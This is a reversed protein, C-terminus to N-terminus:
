KNYFFGRFHDNTIQKILNIFSFYNKNKKDKNPHLLRFNLM